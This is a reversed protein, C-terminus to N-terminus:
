KRWPALSTQQPCEEVLLYAKKAWNVSLAISLFMDSASHIVLPRMRDKWLEGVKTRLRVANSNEVLNNRQRTGFASNLQQHLIFNTPLLYCDLKGGLLQLQDKKVLRNYVMNIRRQIVSAANRRCREM